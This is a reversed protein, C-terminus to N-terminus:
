RFLNKQVNAPAKKLQFYSKALERAAQTSRNPLARRYVAICRWLCLNDDFTDLSAMQRGHALNRLWDPLPGEGLPPQEGFVAKVEINEFKVFTRKTNPRKIKDIDLRQNEKENIWKEADKLNQFWPSGKQKQFYVLKLGTEINVLKVAYNYRLFFASSLGRRLKQMFQVTQNLGLRRKFVWRAFRRGKKTEM